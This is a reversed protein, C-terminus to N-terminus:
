RLMVTLVPCGLLIHLNLLERPTPWSVSDGLQLHNEDPTQGFLLSKLASPLSILLVSSPLFSTYLLARGREVCTILFQLLWVLAVVEWVYAFFNHGLRCYPFSTLTRYRWWLRFSGLCFWMHLLWLCILKWAHPYQFHHYPFILLIVLSGDTPLMTLKTITLFGLSRMHPGSYFLSEIFTEQFYFLNLFIFFFPVPRVHFADLTCPTASGPFLLGLTFGSLHYQRRSFPRSESGLGEQRRYLCVTVFLTWPGCVASCVPDEARREPLSMVDFGSQM